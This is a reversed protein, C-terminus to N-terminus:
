PTCRTQQQASRPCSMSRCRRVDAGLLLPAAAHRYAAFAPLTM